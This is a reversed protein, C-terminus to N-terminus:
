VLDWLSSQYVYLNVELNNGQWSIAPYRGVSPVQGCIGFIFDILTPADPFSLYRCPVRPVTWPYVEFTQLRFVRLVSEPPQMWYKGLTM